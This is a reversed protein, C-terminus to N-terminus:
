HLLFFRVFHLNFFYLIVMLNMSDLGVFFNNLNLGHDVLEICLGVFNYKSLCLIMWFNFMLFRQGCWLFINISLPRRNKLRSWFFSLFYAASVRVLHFFILISDNLYFFCLAQFTELTLSFLNNLIYRRFIALDSCDLIYNLYFSLFAWSSSQNWFTRQRWPYSFLFNLIFVLKMLPFACLPFFSIWRIVNLGNIISILQLRYWEFM